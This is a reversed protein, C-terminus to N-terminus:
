NEGMVNWERIKEGNQLTKVVQRQWPKNRTSKTSPTPIPCECRQEQHVLENDTPVYLSLQM